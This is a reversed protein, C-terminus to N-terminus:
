GIILGMNIQNPVTIFLGFSSQLVTDVAENNEQKNLKLNIELLYVFLHSQFLSAIFSYPPKYNPDILPDL